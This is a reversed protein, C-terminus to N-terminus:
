KQESKSFVRNKQSNLAWKNSYSIQVVKKEEEEKIVDVVFTIGFLNPLCFIFSL